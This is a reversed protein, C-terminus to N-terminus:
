FKIEPRVYKCDAAALTEDVDTMVPRKAGEPKVKRQSRLTFTLDTDLPEGEAVAVLVGRLKRGDATLVEVDNGVNKAYQARVKLPSTIGASGVQLSYDEVDRDFAAEVARTLAVCADIDVPGDVSDIEVDIDNAPTVDLSVLFLGSGDLHATICSELEKKDIM